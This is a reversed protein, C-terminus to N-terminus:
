SYTNKEKLPISILMMSFHKREKPKINEKDYLLIIFLGYADSDGKTSKFLALSTM